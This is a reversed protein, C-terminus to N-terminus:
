RLAALGRAAAEAGIPRRLVDITEVSAKCGYARQGVHARQSGDVSYAANRSVHRGLPQDAVYPDYFDYLHVASPGIHADAGVQNSVIIVARCAAPQDLGPGCLATKIFQKVVM